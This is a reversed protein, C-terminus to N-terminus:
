KINCSLILKPLCKTYNLYSLELNTFINHHRPYVGQKPTACENELSLISKHRTIFLLIMIHLTDKRRKKRKKQRQQYVDENAWPRSYDCNGQPVQQHTQNERKVANERRNRHTPGALSSALTQQPCFSTSYRFSFLITFASPSTPQGM